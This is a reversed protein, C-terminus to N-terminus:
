ADIVEVIVPTIELWCKRNAVNGPLIRTQEDALAIYNWPLTPNNKKGRNDALVDAITKDILDLRDEVNQETWGTAADAAPVFSIVTLGFKNNHRQAGMTWQQRRSGQSVIMQFPWNGSPDGVQYAFVAKLITPVMATTNLAALKERSTQRSASNAAM